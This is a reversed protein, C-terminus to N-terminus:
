EEEIMVDPRQVRLWAIMALAAIKLWPMPQGGHKWQDYYARFRAFIRDEQGEVPVHRWADGWREDDSKLREELAHTFEGMFDWVKM